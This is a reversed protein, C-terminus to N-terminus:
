IYFVYIVKGMIDEETVLEPIHGDLIILVGLLIITDPDMLEDDLSHPDHCDQCQTM